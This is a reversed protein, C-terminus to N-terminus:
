KLKHFDKNIFYCPLKEEPKPEVPPIDWGLLTNPDVGFAYCLKMLTHITINIFHGQEIKSILSSSVQTRFSLENQSWRYRRRFYIISLRLNEFIRTFM